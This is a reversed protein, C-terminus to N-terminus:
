ERERGVDADKYGIAYWQVADTFPGDDTPFLCVHIMGDSLRTEFAHHPFEAQLAVILKMVNPKENRQYTVLAIM